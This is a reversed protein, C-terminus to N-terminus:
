AKKAVLNACQQETKTYTWEVSMYWRETLEECRQYGRKNLLHGVVLHAAHPSVFMLLLGGILCKLLLGENSETLARNLVLRKISAIAYALCVVFPGLTYMADKSFVIAGSGANSMAVTNLIERFFLYAAIASACWLLLPAWIRTTVPVHDEVKM